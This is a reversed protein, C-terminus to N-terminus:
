NSNGLNPRRGPGYLCDGGVVAGLSVCFSALGTSFESGLGSLRFPEYWDFLLELVPRVWVGSSEPSMDPKEARNLGVRRSLTFLLVLELKSKKVLEDLDFVLEEPCILLPCLVEWLEGDAESDFEFRPVLEDQPM